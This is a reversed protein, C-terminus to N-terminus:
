KRTKHSLLRTEAYDIRKLPRVLIKINVVIKRLIVRFERDGYYLVEIPLLEPETFSLTTFNAFLLPNEAIASRITHGGDKDRSRFHGHGDIRSSVKFAQLEPLMCALVTSLPGANVHKPMMQM